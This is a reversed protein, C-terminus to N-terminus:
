PHGQLPQVRAAFEAAHHDPGRGPGDAARRAAALRRLDPLTISTTRKSTGQPDMPSALRFPESPTGTSCRRRATSTAQNPSTRSSAPRVRLDGPRGAEAHSRATPGYLARRLVDPHCRVLDVADGGRRLGGPRRPLRWMRIADERVGTADPGVAPDDLNRWGASGDEFVFWGQHETDAKVQDILDHHDQEFQEHWVHDAWWLDRVDEPTHPRCDDDVDDVDIQDAHALDLMLQRALRRTPGREGTVSTRYRRMVFAVDFDDHQGARPLGPQDCFVEVVVVYFRNHSPQYLKRLGTHVLQHTALRLRGAQAAQFTPTVPVPYSWCDDTTVALSDRPDRLLRKVFDTGDYM